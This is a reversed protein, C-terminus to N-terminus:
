KQQPTQHTYKPPTVPNFLFIAQKIIFQYDTKSPHHLRKIKLPGFIDALINGHYTCLNLIMPPRLQFLPGKGILTTYRISYPRTPLQKTLPTSCHPCIKPYFTQLIKNTLDTYYETNVGQFDHTEITKHPNHKASIAKEYGNESKNKLKTHSQM